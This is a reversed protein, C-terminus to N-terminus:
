KEELILWETVLAVMMALYMAGLVTSLLTVIRGVPTVAVIDGYGVSTMTIMVFWIASQFDGFYYFSIDPFAFEYFPREFIRILSAFAMIM